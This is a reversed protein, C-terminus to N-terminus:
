KRVALFRTCDGWDNRWMDLHVVRESAMDLYPVCRSHHVLASSGLAVIPFGRQMDPYKAGFALLEELTAPRLGMKNMEKVAGESSIRRNFHILKVALEKSGSGKVPFREATINRNIYYYHGAAIMDALSSDYNVTVDLATKRVVEVEDRQLCMVGEMGGLKDVVAEVQGLTLGGYKM